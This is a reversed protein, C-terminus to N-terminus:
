RVIRFSTGVSPEPTGEKSPLLIFAVFLGIEEM